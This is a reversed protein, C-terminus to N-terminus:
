PLNARLRECLAAVAALDGRPADPWEDSALWGYREPTGRYRPFVHQHFHPIGRGVIASFIHEVDLVARLAAAARRAARGVAAAEDDTLDDLYAAHRRSEVFLYGLYVRGDAGPALHSVVVYPDRWVEPAALPGEGRHKRCLDCSL